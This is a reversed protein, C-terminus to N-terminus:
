ILISGEFSVLEGNRSYVLLMLTRNWLMAFELPCFAEVHITKEAICVDQKLFYWHIKPPAYCYFAFFAM